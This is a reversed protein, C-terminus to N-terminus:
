SGLCCVDIIHLKCLICFLIATGDEVRLRNFTGSINCGIMRGEVAIGQIHIILYGIIGAANGTKIRIGVGVHAACVLFHLTCRVCPIETGASLQM